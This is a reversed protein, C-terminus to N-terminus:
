SVVARASAEAARRRTRLFRAHNHAALRDSLFRPLYRLLRVQLVDRAPFSVFEQERRVARLIRTVADDVSLMPPPEPVDLHAAIDTKIFGPCITTVRIGSPKLEVRFADCLANVGAKSACYGALLPVGRYSAISSIAVLHGSRRALMGPLVAAMSNAVGILNVQVETAFEEVRFNLASTERVIGANAFLLETPGLRQELDAVARSVEEADTVDAEATACGTGFEDSLATLSAANCDLVGIRAGERHLARVLGRGIGNGGGTILVVRNSFSKM